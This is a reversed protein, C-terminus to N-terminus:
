ELLLGRHGFSIGSDTTNSSYGTLSAFGYFMYFFLSANSSCCLCVAAELIILQFIKLFRPFSHCNAVCFLYSFISLLKTFDVLFLPAASLFVVLSPAESFIPLSM